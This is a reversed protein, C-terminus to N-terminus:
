IFAGVRWVEHHFDGKVLGPNAAFYGSTDKTKDVSRVVGRVTAFKSLLASFREAADRSWCTVIIQSGFVRIQKAPIGSEALKATMAQQPTM